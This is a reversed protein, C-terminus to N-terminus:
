IAPDILRDPLERITPDPETLLVPFCCYLGPGCGSKSEGNSIGEDCFDGLCGYKELGCSELTSCSWNNDPDQIDRMSCSDLCQGQYCVGIGNGCPTSPKAGTCESQLQYPETAGFSTLIFKVIIWSGLIFFLAITTGVLINKGRTVKEQSGGSTLMFVGGIVYMLLAIAGSVGTGWQIIINIADFMQQLTCNGAQYIRCQRGECDASTQCSKNIDLNGDEGVCRYTVGTCPVKGIFNFGQAYGVVPLFILFAIIILKKM